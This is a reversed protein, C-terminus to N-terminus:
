PMKKCMKEVFDAIKAGNPCKKASKKWFIVLFRALLGNKSSLFSGLVSFFLTITGNKVELISMKGWFFM